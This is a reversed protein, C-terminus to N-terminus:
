VQLVDKLRALIDIHAQLSTLGANVTSVSLHTAGLSRWVEAQTAWADERGQKISIGGQVEIAVAQVERGAARIADQLFTVQDHAKEYAAPNTLDSPAHIWGDGFRAVRQLTAETFGGLWIPIPCQVPLPSLSADTLRHWQGQFTVTPQTWLARLVTMQEEIRTGRGQFPVNMAGFEAKNWGVGLGLRLRGSSLRDLSAAQKALLLTQRSPAVVVGTVLEIRRTFGALHAFLILPEIKASAPPPGALV